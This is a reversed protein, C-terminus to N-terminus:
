FDHSCEPCAYIRSPLKFPIRVLDWVWGRWTRRPLMTLMDDLKGWDVGVSQGVFFTPAASENFPPDRRWPPRTPHDSWVIPYYRRVYGWWIHARTRFLHCCELCIKGNGPEDEQHIYCHWPACAATVEHMM